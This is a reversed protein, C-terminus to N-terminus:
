EDTPESNGDTSFGAKQEAEAQAALVVDIFPKLHEHVACWERPSLGDLEEESQKEAVIECMLEAVDMATRGIGKLFSCGLALCVSLVLLASVIIKKM